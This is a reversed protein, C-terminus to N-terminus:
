VDKDGAVNKVVNYLSGSIKSVSGFSGSVVNSVLSKVGKGIGGVFEEPGKLLGKKPESFFEFVGTGLKDVFGTPNGILDSSGFIKYFQM